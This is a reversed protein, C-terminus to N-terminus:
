ATAGRLQFLRATYHAGALAGSSRPSWMRIAASIPPPSCADRFNGTRALAELAAGLAGRLAPRLGPRFPHRRGAAGPRRELRDRGPAPGGAGCAARPGSLPLRQARGAGPLDHARGRAAQEIPRGRCRRLFVHRGAGGAVSARPRAGASRALRLVGAAAVAGARARPGHRRTIGVCQGTASLYGESSGASSLAGGPRARRLRRVRAPEGGSVAGDRHRRELRRAAPRVTRRRAHRGGPRLPGPASSTPRPLRMASHSASCHASFASACAARRRSRRPGPCRTPTRGPRSAGAACTSWRTTPRPSPRGGRRARARSGCGTSSRSRARAGSAGSRWSAASSWAPAASEPGATCTCAAGPAALAHRLSELIEAMQSREDPLGHDPIPKRLYLAGRRCSPNM